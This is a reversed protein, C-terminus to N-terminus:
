TGAGEPIDAVARPAHYRRGCLALRRRAASRVAANTAPRNSHTLSVFQLIERAQRWCPESFDADIVPPIDCRPPHGGAARGRDLGSARGFARRGTLQRRKKDARRIPRNMGSRANMTGRRKEVLRVRIIRVCAARALCVIGTANIQIGTDDDAREPGAAPIPRPASNPYPPLVGSEWAAATWFDPALGFEMELPM